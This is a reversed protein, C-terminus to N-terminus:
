YTTIARWSANSGPAVRRLEGYIVPFLESAPAPRRTAM